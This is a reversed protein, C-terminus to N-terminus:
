TPKGALWRWPHERKRLGLWVKISRERGGRNKLTQSIFENEKKNGPMALTAGISDCLGRAVDYTMPGEVSESNKFELCM